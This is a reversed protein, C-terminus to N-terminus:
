SKRARTSLSAILDTTAGGRMVTAVHVASRHVERRSGVVVLRSHLDILLRRACAPGDAPGCRM